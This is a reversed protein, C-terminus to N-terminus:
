IMMDKFAHLRIIYLGHKDAVQLSASENALNGNTLFALPIGVIASSNGLSCFVSRKEYVERNPAKTIRSATVMCIWATKPLFLKLEGKGKIPKEIKTGDPYKISVKWSATYASFSFCIMFIFILVKM